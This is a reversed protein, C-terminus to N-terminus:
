LGAAARYRNLRERMLALNKPSIGEAVELALRQAHVAREHMGAANAAFALTDLSVVERGGALVVAQEAVRVARQPDRVSPDSSEALTRAIAVLPASQGPMSRAAQQFHALALDSRGSSRLLRGLGLHAFGLGPELRLAEQYYEIARQPEGLATHVLALNVNGVAAYEGVKAAARHQVAAEDLRGEGQLWLGYYTNMLPNRAVAALSKRYLTDSNQWHGAQVYSACALATVCALLLAILPARVSM